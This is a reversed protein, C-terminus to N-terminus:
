RLGLRRLPLPRDLVGDRLGRVLEVVQADRGERHARWAERGLWAPLALLRAGARLGRALGALPPRDGDDLCHLALARRFGFAGIKLAEEERMLMALYELPVNYASSLAFYLRERWGGNKRVFRVTNRAGLYTRVPNWSLPMPRNLEAKRRRPVRRPQDFRETSKSGGHFVRALPEYCLRYGARRARLCWDVEEHYAFYADDLPGIAQLAERTMLLCCGVAADVERRQAFGAGPLANVGLRRVIGHGWYLELWAVDLMEPHDARLIASSVGAIARDANVAWLLFTLFDPAVQADNNLLLVGQAGAALAAAIGANNGGAYGENRPLAVIWQEPFRARIREVSGDASGNDVVLTRAGDLDAAALSELCAITAEPQRWNLVVIVVDAARLRAGRLWVRRVAARRARRGPLRLRRPHDIWVEVALTSDIPPSARLPLELIQWRAAPVRFCGEVYPGFDRHRGVEADGAFLRVVAQSGRRGPVWVEVGVHTPVGAVRVAARAGTDAWRTPTGDPGPAPEDFGAGYRVPAVAGPVADAAAATEADAM